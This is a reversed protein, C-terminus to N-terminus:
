ILGNMDCVNIRSGDGDDDVGLEMFGFCFYSIIINSITLDNISPSKKGNQM